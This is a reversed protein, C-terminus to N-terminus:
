HRNWCGILSRRAQSQKAQTSGRLLVYLSRLSARRRSGAVPRARRDAFSRKGAPRFVPVPRIAVMPTHSYWYAQEVM